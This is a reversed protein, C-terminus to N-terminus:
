CTTYTDGEKTARVLVNKSVDLVFYEEKTKVVELFPDWTHERFSNEVTMLKETSVCDKAYEDEELSAQFAYLSNSALFLFMGDYMTVASFMIDAEYLEYMGHKSIRFIRTKRQEKCRGEHVCFLFIHTEGEGGKLYYLQLPQTSRICDGHPWDGDKYQIEVDMQYGCCNEFSNLALIFVEPLDVEQHRMYCKYKTYMSDKERELEFKAVNITIGHSSTYSPHQDINELTYPNESLVVKESGNSMALVPAFSGGDIRRVYEVACEKWTDRHSNCPEFWPCKKQLATQFYSDPIETTNSLECLSKLDLSSFDPTM